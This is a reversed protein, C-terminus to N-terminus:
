RLLMIAVFCMLYFYLKSICSTQLGNNTGLFKDYDFKINYLKKFQEIKDVSNCELINCYIKFHHIHTQRTKLLHARDDLFIDTNSSSNPKFKECYACVRNTTGDVFMMCQSCYNTEENTYCLGSETFNTYKSCVLPLDPEDTYLKPMILELHPEITISRLLLKMKDSDPENCNDTACHYVVFYSLSTLETQQISFGGLVFDEDYGYEDETNATIYGKGAEFGIGLVCYRHQVSRKTCNSLTPINEPTIASPQTINCHYCILTAASRASLIFIVCKLVNSVSM